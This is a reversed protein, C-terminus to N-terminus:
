CERHHLIRNLDAKSLATVPIPERPPDDGIGLDLGYYVVDRWAGCKYGASKYVGILSFGHAAQIHESAPNPRVIAAYLHRLGQMRAIAILKGYILTGLGHGTADPHLYLSTEGCWRYSARERYRAIYGYGIIRSDMEAVIYPYMATIQSVRGSFEELTPVTEEFTVPLGIYPAYIHLLQAADDPRALRLTIDGM